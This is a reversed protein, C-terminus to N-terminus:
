IRRLANAEAYPAMLPRPMDPLYLDLVHRPLAWNRQDSMRAAAAEGERVILEDDQRYILYSGTTETM